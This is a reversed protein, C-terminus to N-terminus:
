YDIPQIIIEGAGAEVVEKAFNNPTIKNKKVELNLICM